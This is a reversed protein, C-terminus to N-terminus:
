NVTIDMEYDTTRTSFSSSFPYIYVKIYYTGASSVTHTISENDSATDSDTLLVGTSSRFDLDLDANNDVFLLDM